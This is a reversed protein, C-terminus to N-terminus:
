EVQQYIMIKSGIAIIIQKGDDSLSLNVPSLLRYDPSTFFDSWIRLGDFAILVVEINGKKEKIFSEIGLHCAIFGFIKADEAIDIALSKAMHFGALRGYKLMVEGSPLDILFAGEYPSNFLAYKENSSFCILSGLVNEYRKILDGNGSLLYTSKEDPPYSAPPSTLSSVIMYNAFKSIGGGTYFNENSTFRWLEKGDGTFLLVGIGEGLAHGYDDKATVLFYEGDESFEAGISQGEADGVGAYLKMEKIKNGNRDYLIFVGSSNDLEIVFGDNSISYRNPSTDYGLERELEWLMKGTYDFLRFKYTGRESVDEPIKSFELGGIYRLNKSFRPREFHMKNILTFNSNYICINEDKVGVIVESLASGKDKKPGFVISEVEDKGLDIERVLKYETQKPKKEPKIEEKVRVKAGIEELQKRQWRNIVFEWPEGHTSDYPPCEGVMEKLLEYQVRGRVTVRVREQILKMQTSDLQEEQAFVFVLLVMGLGALLLAGLAFRRLMIRKLM